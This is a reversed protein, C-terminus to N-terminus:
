RILHRVLFGNQREISHPLIEDAGDDCCVMKDDWRTGAPVEVGPGIICNRIRCAPGIWSEAMIVSNELLSGEAVMSALGLAVGGRFAVSPHLVAGAGVAVKAGGIEQIPDTDLIDRRTEAQLSLLRMSGELYSEPNGFEWWFGEHLHSALLRERALDRYVHRVIDSPGGRPILDLVEEEMLHLGTFMYRGSVEDPDCPPDGGLSIIRGEENVLVETYGPRAPALVMTAPCGSLLHTRTAKELVIDALFDSNRVLITGSGRLFEEAARLGGATGLLNEEHSYHLEKLGVLRGDALFDEIMEPLHHLNLAVSTFGYRALRTLIQMVIPRGLVPIVPKPVSNTLPQMRVGHGAALLMVKM